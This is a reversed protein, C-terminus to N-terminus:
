FSLSSDTLHYNYNRDPCTANEPRLTDLNACLDFGEGDEHVKYYYDSGDPDRPTERLLPEQYGECSPTSLEQLTEPFESCEDRYLNLVNQLTVMDTLRKTDSESTELANEIISQRTVVALEQILEEYTIYESPTEVLVVEGFNDFKVVLAFNAQSNQAIDASNGLLASGYFGEDFELTSAIKLRHTYYTNKAIYIEWSLEKIMESLDYSEGGSSLDSSRSEEELKQGLYDILEKDADLAIVYYKIGDEEVQSIEMQDLIYDDLYKENIEVLFEQSLPETEKTDLEKRAQTDLPTTDYAVWRKLYPEVLDDSMGILSFIFSPFKNVRFYLVPDNKRLEINFEKTLSADLSFIVSNTDSYDIAGKAETDFKNIGLVDSLSSSDLALSIDFSHKTVDQHAIISRILLFKATKPMFPLSQVYGAVTAQVEPYNKLKIKEYAVAYGLVATATFFFLFLFVILFGFIKVKNRKPKEELVESANPQPSAQVVTAQAYEQQPQTSQIPPNAQQVPNQQQPPHKPQLPGTPTPTQTPTSLPVEGQTPPQQNGPGQASTPDM